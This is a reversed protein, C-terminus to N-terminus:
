APVLLAWGFNSADLQASKKMKEECSRSLKVPEILDEAAVLDYSKSTM